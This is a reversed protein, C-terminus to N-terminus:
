STWIRGGIEAILLSLVIDLVVIGLTVSISSRLTIRVINFRYWLVVVLTVLSLLVLIGSSIVGALYLLGALVYPVAALLSSWNRVVILSIYGNSIGIPRALVALIIPLAIWDLGLIAFQATWYAGNPFTDALLGAETLMLKKEAMASVAFMPLLLFVVGFSRWFGDISQDFWRLGDPRNLFLLWSGQIARAIEPGKIM